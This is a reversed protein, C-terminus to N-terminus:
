DCTTLPYPGEDNFQLCNEFDNPDDGDEFECANTVTVVLNTTQAYVTNPVFTHVGNFFLSSVMFLMLSIGLVKFYSKM